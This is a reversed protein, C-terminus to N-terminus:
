APGVLEDLLANAATLLLAYTAEYSDVGHGVPDAVDAAPGQAAPDMIHRLLRLKAKGPQVPGVASLGRLRQLDSLNARDMALIHDFRHLDGPEVGRSRLGTLDIGHRAAVAVSNRHPMHGGDAWCGASDILFRDAVGRVRAREGFVGEALPSRCLNAHCVFLVGIRSHEM